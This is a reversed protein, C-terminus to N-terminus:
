GEGPEEREQFDPHDQHPPGPPAGGGSWAQWSRAKNGDTACCRCCCGTHSVGCSMSHTHGLCKMRLSYRQFAEIYLKVCEASTSSGSVSQM